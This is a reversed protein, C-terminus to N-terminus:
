IVLVFTVQCSGDIDQDLNTWDSKNGASDVARVMFGYTGASPTYRADSYMSHTVIYGLDLSPWVSGKLPNFSVYEYHDVGINDTSSNWYAKISGAELDSVTKGCGLSYSARDVWHLNKPISPKETDTESHLGKGPEAAIATGSDKSFVVRLLKPGELIAAVVVLSILTTVSGLIIKNLHRLLYGKM